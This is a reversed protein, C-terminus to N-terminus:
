KFVNLWRKMKKLIVNCFDERYNEAFRKADASWHEKSFNSM